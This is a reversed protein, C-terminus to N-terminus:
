EDLADDCVLPAPICVPIAVPDPSTPHLLTCYRVKLYDADGLSDGLASLLAANSCHFSDRLLENVPVCCLWVEHGTWGHETEYVHSYEGRM